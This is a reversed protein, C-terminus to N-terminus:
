TDATLRNNFANLWKRIDADKLGGPLHEQTKFFGLVTNTPQIHKTKKKKPKCLPRMNGDALFTYEGDIAIVVFSRGKDRGRKSLVITGIEM